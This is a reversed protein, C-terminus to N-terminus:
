MNECSCGLDDGVRHVDRRLVRVGEGRGDLAARKARVGEVRRDVADFDEDLSVAPREVGPNLEELARVVILLHQRMM